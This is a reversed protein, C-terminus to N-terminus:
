MVPIGKGVLPIRVPRQPLIRFPDVPHNGRLLFFGALFDRQNYITLFNRSIQPAHPAIRGAMIFNGIFESIRIKVLNFM